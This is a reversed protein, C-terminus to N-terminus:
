YYHFPFGTWRRLTTGSAYVAFARRYADFDYGLTILREHLYAAVREILGRDCPPSALSPGPLQGRQDQTPLRFSPDPENSLEGPVPHTAQPTRPCEQLAM